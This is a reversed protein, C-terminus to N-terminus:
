RTVAIEGPTWTPRRNVLAPRYLSQENSEVRNRVNIQLNPNLDPNILPEFEIVNIFNNGSGVWSMLFRDVFYQYNSWILSPSADSTDSLKTKYMQLETGANFLDSRLQVDGLLM